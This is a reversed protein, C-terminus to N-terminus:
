FRTYGPKSGFAEIRRTAECCQGQQRTGKHEGEPSLASLIGAHSAKGKNDKKEEEGESDEELNAKTM